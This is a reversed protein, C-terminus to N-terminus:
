ATRMYSLLPGNGQFGPVGWGLNSINNISQSLQQPNTGPTGYKSVLSNIMNAGTSGLHSWFSASADASTQAALWPYQNGSVAASGLQGGIAINENGFNAIKGELGVSNVLRNFLRDQEQGASTLATQKLGIDELMKALGYSFVDHSGTTSGMNGSNYVKSLMDEARWADEPANLSKINGYYNNAFDGQNFLAYDRAATNRAGMAQVLAQQFEPSLQSFVNNGSFSVNGFPSNVNYPNFKYQQAAKSLQDQANQSGVYSLVSGLINGAGGNGLLSDFFGMGTGGQSGAAAGNSLGAGNGFVNQMGSILPNSSGALTGTNFLNGNSVTNGLGTPFGFHTVDGLLNSGFTKGFVGPNNLLESWGGAASFENGIGSAFSGAGYGQLAGTIGGLFNGSDVGGKVGGYVTALATGMGPVVMNGVTNLVIEPLINTFLGELFGPQKNQQHQATGRVSKDFGLLAYGPDIGKVIGTNFYNQIAQDTPTAAWGKAMRAAYDKNFWKQFNNYIEASGGAKQMREPWLTQLRGLINNPDAGVWAAGQGPSAYDINKANLGNVPNTAM